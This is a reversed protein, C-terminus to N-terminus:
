QLQIGIGVGDFYINFTEPNKKYPALKITAKSVISKVNPNTANLIASLSPSPWSIIQKNFDPFEQNTFYEVTGTSEYWQNSKIRKKIERKDKEILMNNITIKMIYASPHSYQTYIIFSDDSDGKGIVYAPNDQWKGWYKNIYTCSNFNRQCFGSISFVSTILLVGLLLNIKKM